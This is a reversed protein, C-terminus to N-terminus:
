VQHTDTDLGGGNYLRFKLLTDEEPETLITSRDSYNLTDQFGKLISHSEREGETDINSTQTIDPFLEQPLLFYGLKELM